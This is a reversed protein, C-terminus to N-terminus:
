DDYHPDMDKGDRDDDYEIEPCVYSLVQGGARTQAHASLLQGCELCRWGQESPAFGSWGLVGSHPHDGPVPGRRTAPPHAWQKPLSGGAMIHNHLSRVQDAMRAYGRITRHGTLFSTIESLTQDPDFFQSDGPLVPGYAAM